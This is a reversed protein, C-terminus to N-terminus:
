AYNYTIWNSRSHDKAAEPRNDRRNPNTLLGGPIDTNKSAWDIQSPVYFRYREFYFGVSMTTLRSEMNNLQSSGVNFPFVNRLEWMAVVRNRRPNNFLPQGTGCKLVQHALPDFTTIRSGGGREWKFIRVTPATINDYYDVYQDADNRMFSMWREFLARTKCSSPMKFVINIQSFASGTPYRYSAGQTVIQGTTMQKSPLNVSDAYYDLLLRNDGTSFSWDAHSGMMSPTSFHVSYMNTYSPVNAQQRFFAIFEQLSSDRAEEKNPLDGGNIIDQINWGQLFASIGSVVKGFM